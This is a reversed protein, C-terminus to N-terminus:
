SGAVVIVTTSLVLHFIVVVVRLSSVVAAPVVVPGAATGVGMWEFSFTSFALHTLIKNFLATVATYIISPTPESRKEGNHPEETSPASLLKKINNGLLM